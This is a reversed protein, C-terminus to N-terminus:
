NEKKQKEELISIRTEHDQLREEQNDTRSTLVKIDERLENIADQLRTISSNLTIVPKGVTMFLGVLAIIVTVVTWEM